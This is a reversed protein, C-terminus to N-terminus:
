ARTPALTIAFRTPQGPASDLSYEFGHADLIEAVLTLGVGQGSEKTTFFPLFLNRRVDASFGPGSDEIVLTPAPLPAKHGSGNGTYRISVTGNRDIAEISNRVINLLAQELLAPDCRTPTPGPACEMEIEINRERAETELLRVIGGVLERLDVEQLKPPPLRVVDAFRKMFQNMHSSRRMAVRLAQSFDVRDPEALQSEYRLCSELLSHVSGTTNNVEHSMMRILKEYASKESRRLEESLEEMMIFFRPFGRDFFEGKQCKVRRRGTLPLVTSGGAGLRALADAFPIGLEDLRQGALSSSDQGLMTTASRNAMVIRGDFDLTVIGSPSAALVRQLFSEQEENRTREERLHDVMRNYVRALEDLEPQGTELFRTTFDSESMFQAGSRILQIPEFLRRVLVVGVIASLLFFAEVALLWVRHQWLFLAAAAAFVAHLLALYLLFRLRLTPHAKM